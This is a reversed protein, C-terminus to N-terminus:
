QHWLSWRCEGLQQACDAISQDFSETGHQLPGCDITNSLGTGRDDILLLDHVDLNPGFLSQALPFHTTTSFGPLGFNMLIASEAPGSGSHTFLEFYIAIKAGNPHERDLPVKIYGCVAGVDAPPCPTPIVDSTASAPLRATGARLAQPIQTLHRGEPIHPVNRLPAQARASILSACLILLLKGISQM